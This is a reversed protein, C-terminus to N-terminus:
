WEKKCLRTACVRHPASGSCSRREQPANYRLPHPRVELLAPRSLEDELVVSNLCAFAFPATEVASRSGAREGVVM